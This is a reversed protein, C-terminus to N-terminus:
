KLLKTFRTALKYISRLNRGLGNYDLGYGVIFKDPIKIGTFDIEIAKNYVTPKVILAAVYIKKPHQKQVLKYITELTNGTDVIDEIIVVVRNKLEESLGILQKMSGRKTGKYSAVKLFSVECSYPYERVLDSAFVFSGNLVCLFIPNSDKLTKTLKKGMSVVAKQIRSEAIYPVFQKDHLNIKQM